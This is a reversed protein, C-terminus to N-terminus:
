INFYIPIWVGNQRTLQIVQGPIHLSNDSICLLGFDLGPDWFALLIVWIQCFIILLAHLWWIFSNLPLPNLFWNPISRLHITIWWPHSHIASNLSVSLVLLVWLPFLMSLFHSFWPHYIFLHPKDYTCTTLAITKGTTVYPHSLQVM